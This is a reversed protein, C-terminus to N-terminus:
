QKEHGDKNKREYYVLLRWGTPVQQMCRQECKKLWFDHFRELKKAFWRLQVVIFVRCTGPDIKVQVNKFARTTTVAAGWINYAVMEAMQSDTSFNLQQELRRRAEENNM